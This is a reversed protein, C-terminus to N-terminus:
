HKASRTTDDTGGGTIFVDFNFDNRHLNNTTDAAIIRTALLNDNDDDSAQRVNGPCPSLVAAGVKTNLGKVEEGAGLSAGFLSRVWSPSMCGM